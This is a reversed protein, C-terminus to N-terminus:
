VNTDEFICRGITKTGRLGDPRFLGNGLGEVVTFPLRRSGSQILRLDNQFQNSRIIAERCALIRLPDVGTIEHEGIPAGMLPRIDPDHAWHLLLNLGVIGWGYFNHAPWNLLIPRM